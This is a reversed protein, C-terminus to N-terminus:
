DKLDDSVVEGYILIEMYQLYRKKEEEYRRVLEKGTENDLEILEKIADGLVEKKNTETSEKRIKEKDENNM